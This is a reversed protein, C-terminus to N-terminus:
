APQLYHTAPVMTRALMLGYVRSTLSVAAPPPDCLWSEAAFIKGHHDFYNDGHRQV